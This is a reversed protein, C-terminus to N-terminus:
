PMLVSTMTTRLIKVAAPKSRELVKVAEISIGGYFCSNTEREQEREEWIKAHLKEAVIESKM